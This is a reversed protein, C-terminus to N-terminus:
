MCNIVIVTYMSLLILYKPNIKTKLLNVFLAANSHSYRWVHRLMTTHTDTHLCARSIMEKKHM